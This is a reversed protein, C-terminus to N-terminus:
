EDVCLYYATITVTAAGTGSNKIAYQAGNQTLQWNYVICNQGNLMYWGIVAIPVADSPRPVTIWSTGGAPVSTPSGQVYLQRFRVRKAIKELIKKLSLM